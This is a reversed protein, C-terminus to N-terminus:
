EDALTLSPHVEQELVAEEPIATTDKRIRELERVRKRLEMRLKFNSVLGGIGGIIIGLFVATLVVIFLPVTLAESFGYYRINVYDVNQLSFTVTLFFLLLILIAKFVNM